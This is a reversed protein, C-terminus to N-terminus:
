VELYKRMSMGSGLVGIGIGIALYMIMILNIMDAFSVLSINLKQLTEVQVAQVAIANYAFGVIILTILASIIGIIMGEVAFPWRIFNNTAGVYKMISIEKRRAHVSLKITNSIIFISIIILAILIALIGIRLGRAISSLTEITSDIAVIDYIMKRNNIQIDKIQNQVEKNLSLDTLTVTYSAPVYEEPVGDMFKDHDKMDEKMQNLADEKSVYKITNVGEIKMIEQELKKIEEDTADKEIFAQMGQQKEINTVIHNINEGLIFFAGFMLMTLCMTTISIVTSKKNKFVNRFGEGILYSIINYRM